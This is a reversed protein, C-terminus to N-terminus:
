AEDHETRWAHSLGTIQLIRVVRESPRGIVFGADADEAAHGLEVLAGIGTSDIFSVDALDLVLVQAGQEFVSRGATLLAERSQVDIAGSVRLVSRGDADTGAEIGINM